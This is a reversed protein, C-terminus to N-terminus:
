YLCYYVWYLYYYLYYYKLELMKCSIFKTNSHTV